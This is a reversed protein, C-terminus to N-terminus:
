LSYVLNGFVPGGIIAAFAMRGYGQMALHSNAIIDPTANSIAGITVSMFNESLNFVIAVIDMLVELEAM